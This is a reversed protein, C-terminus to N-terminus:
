GSATASGAAIGSHVDRGNRGSTRGPEPRKKRGPKPHRAEWMARLVARVRDGGGGSKAAAIPTMGGLAANPQNLWDNAKAEDGFIRTAEWRFDDIRSQAEGSFSRELERHCHPLFFGLSGGILLTVFIVFYEMSGSMRADPQVTLVLYTVLATVFGQIAAERLRRGRAVESSTDLFYATFAGTTGPLAVWPMAKMAASMTFPEDGFLAVLPLLAALGAVGGVVGASVIQIPTGNWESTIKLRARLKYAAWAACGHVLLSSLAWVVATQQPTMNDQPFELGFIQAAIVALFVLAPMALAAWRIVYFMSPAPQLPKVKFGFHALANIAGADIPYKLRVACGIFVYTRRLAQQLAEALDEVDGSDSLTGQRYSAIGHQMNKHLMLVREYELRYASVFELDLDEPIKGFDDAADGDANDLQLLAYVLCTFRAWRHEISNRPAAFDSREITRFVDDDLIEPRDYKSFDFKAGRLRTHMLQAGEPIFARRHAARRFFLEVQQIWKVNPVIGVIILAIALPFSEPKLPTGNLAEAFGKTGAASCVVYLLSLSGLYFLLANVYQRPLALFRPAFLTEPQDESAQFTPENFKQVGFVLVVLLGILITAFTQTTLELGAPFVWAGAIAGSVEPM